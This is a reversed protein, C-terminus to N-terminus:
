FYLANDEYQEWSEVSSTSTVSYTYGGAIGASDYSISAAGTKSTTTTSYTHTYKSAFELTGSKVRKVQVAAWGDFTFADDNVNFTYIGKLRQSGDKKTVVGDTPVSSSYYSGYAPDWEVSVVDLTAHNSEWTVADWSSTLHWYSQTSRKTSYVSLPIDSPDTITGMIEITGLEEKDMEEFEVGVLELKHQKELETSDNNSIFNHTFRNFEVDTLSAIKKTFHKKKKEIQSADLKKLEEALKVEEKSYYEEKINDLNNIEKASSYSSTFGLTLVLIGLALVSKVVFNKMM